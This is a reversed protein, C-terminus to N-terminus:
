GRQRRFEEVDGFDVPSPMEAPQRQSGANFINRQIDSFALDIAQESQIAGSFGGRNFQQQAQQKGGRAFGPQKIRRQGVPVIMRRM